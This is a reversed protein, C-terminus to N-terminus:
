HLFFPSLLLTKPSKGLEQLIMQNVEVSKPLTLTGGLSKSHVSSGTFTKKETMLLHMKRSSNINYLDRFM